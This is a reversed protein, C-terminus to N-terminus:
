VAICKVSSKPVVNPFSCKSTLMANSTVIRADKQACRCIHAGFIPQFRNKYAAHSYLSDAALSIGIEFTAAQKGSEWDPDGEPVPLAQWIGYMKGDQGGDAEESSEYEKQSGDDQDAGEEEM